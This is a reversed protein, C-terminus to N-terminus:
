GITVRERAAWLERLLGVIRDLEVPKVLHEDFGAARSQARDHEQGYGTLAVLKVDPGLLERMRRALEYGDMLPLGIDLFAADPRTRAAADLASPGDYAALVAHGSADLAEVLADAADQNDDVVLVRHGAGPGVRALALPAAAAPTLTARLPVPLRITFVSGRGPGESAAAVEGGHLEVLSKVIALGLGLGGQSRDLTRQGQVFLDFVRGLLEPPIGMGSDRVKMVAWDGDREVSVSVTGGPETYKAANTLLNAVAQALRDPDGEVVLGSRGDRTLRHRRGELLPSVMEISASVVEHLDVLRRKLAVKGRTIRSVDLLDDVLRVLHQVQRLILTREREFADGARMRMLELATIIPSLPNRLEHGLMALFEDKARSATEAERRAQQERALLEERELESQVQETVDRAIGLVLEPEGSPTRSFVRDRSRVWRWSGEAHRMRYEHELMAGDPLEALRREHEELGAIHDPHVLESLYADGLAAIERPARGLVQEVSRSVYVSRRRRVDFLYLMDPSAEAIGEFLRQSRVVEEHLRTKELASAARSALGEVLLRDEERYRERPQSRLVVLAGLARGKVQLPAAIVDSPASREAASCDARGVAACRNMAGGHTGRRADPPADTAPVLVTEGRAVAAWDVLRELAGRDGGLCQLVESSGREAAAARPELWTGDAALLRLFAGDGVAASAKRAAVELLATTSMDPAGFAETADALIRLRRRAQQEADLLRARELAQVCQAALAQAFSRAEAPIAVRGGFAFGLQGAVHEGSLPLGIVSREGCFAEWTLDECRSAPGGAGAAAGEACSLGGAEGVHVDPAGGGIGGSELDHVVPGRHAGALRELRQRESPDLGRSALLELQAPYGDARESRDRASPDVRSALWIAGSTAGLAHSGFAVAVEGVEYATRARSFASAVCLLKETWTAHLEAM